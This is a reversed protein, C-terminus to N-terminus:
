NGMTAPDIEISDLNVIDYAIAGCIAFGGFGFAAVAANKEWKQERWIAWAMTLFAVLGLFGCFWTLIVLVNSGANTLRTAGNSGWPNPGLQALAPFTLLALLLAANIGFSLLPRFLTLFRVAALSARCIKAATQNHNAGFSAAFNIHNHM